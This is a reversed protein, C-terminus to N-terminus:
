ECVRTTALYSLQPNTTPPCALLSALYVRGQDSDSIFHALRPVVPCFTTQQLWKSRSRGVKQGGIILSQRTGAVRGSGFKKKSGSGSGFQKEFNGLKPNKGTLQESTKLRGSM